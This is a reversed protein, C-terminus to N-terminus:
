VAGALANPASGTELGCVLWRRQQSTRSAALRELGLGDRGAGAGGDGKRWLLWAAM